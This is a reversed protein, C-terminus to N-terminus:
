LDNILSPDIGFFEVFDISIFIDSIQVLSTFYNQLDESRKELFEKSMKGCIKNPPFPLLFRSKNFHPRIMNDLHKLQAFSKRVITTHIERGKQIGVEINFVIKNISYDIEYDEVIIYMQPISRSSKLQDRKLSEHSENYHNRSNLPALIDAYKSDDFKVYFYFLFTAFLFLLTIFLGLVTKGAKTTRNAFYKEADLNQHKQKWQKFRNDEKHEQEWYVYFTGNPYNCLNNKYSTSSNRIGFIFAFLFTLLFFGAAVFIQYLRKDGIIPIITIFDFHLLIVVIITLILFITTATALGGNHIPKRWIYEYLCKDLAFMYILTAFTFIGTIVNILFSPRLYKNPIEDYLDM